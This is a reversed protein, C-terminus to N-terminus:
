FGSKRSVQSTVKRYQWNRAYDALPNARNVGNITASVALPSINTSNSGGPDTLDAGLAVAVNALAPLVSPVVTNQSIDAEPITGFRKQAARVSSSLRQSRFGYGVFTPLSDGARAGPMGAGLSYSTFADGGVKQIVEISHFVTNGSLALLLPTLVTSLFNSAIYSQSLVYPPNGPGNGYHFVNVLEQGDCTAKLVVDWLQIPVFSM